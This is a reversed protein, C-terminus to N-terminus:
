ADLQLLLKLSDIDQVDDDPVDEDDIEGNLRKWEIECSKVSAYSTRQLSVMKRSPAELVIEADVNRRKQERTPVVNSGSATEFNYRLFPM